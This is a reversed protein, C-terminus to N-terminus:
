LLRYLVTRNGVAVRGKVAASLQCSALGSVDVEAAIRREKERIYKKAVKQSGNSLSKLEKVLAKEFTRPSVQLPDHHTSISGYLSIWLGESVELKSSRARDQLKQLEGPKGFIHEYTDVHAPLPGKARAQSLKYLHEDEKEIQDRWNM